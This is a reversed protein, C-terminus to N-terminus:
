LHWFEIGHNYLHQRAMYIFFSTISLYNCLNVCFGKNCLNEVSCEQNLVLQNEIKSLSKLCLWTKLIMHAGKCIQSLFEQKLHDLVLFKM